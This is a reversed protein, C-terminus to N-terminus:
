AGDGGSSRRWESPSMGTIRRFQENFVSKSAYGAEMALELITGKPRELMLAKVREVRRANLWAPFSTELYTNIWSSLRYPPVKVVEAFSRLDLDPRGIIEPDGIAREVREKILAVEHLDRLVFQEKEELIVSRAKAFLEPQSLASFYWVLLLLELLSHGIRYVTRLGFAGGALICAMVAVFALGGRGFFKSGPRRFDVARLDVRCLPVLVIAMALPWAYIAYAAFAHFPALMTADEVSRDIASLGLAYDAFPLLWVLASWALGVPTLYRYAPPPEETFLYVVIDALAQTNVFLAAIVLLNSIDVPIRGTSDFASLCFLFGSALLLLGLRGNVYDRHPSILFTLGGTVLAVGSIERFAGYLASLV